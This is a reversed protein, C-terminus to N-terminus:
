EKSGQPSAVVEGNVEWKWGVIGNVLIKLKRFGKDKLFKYAQRSWPGSNCYLVIESDSGLTSYGSEIDGIPINLAGRIHGAKYEDPRRLDVMVFNDGNKMKDLLGQSSVGAYQDEAVVSLDTVPTEKVTRKVEVVIIGVVVVAVIALVYRDKM